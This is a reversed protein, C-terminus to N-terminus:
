KLKQLVIRLPMWSPYSDNFVIPKYIQGSKNAQNSETSDYLVITPSHKTKKIIIANSDKKLIVLNIGIVKSINKLNNKLNNEDTICVDDFGFYEKCESKTFKDKDNFLIYQIAEWWNYTKDIIMSSFNQLIDVNNSTSIKDKDTDIDTENEISKNENFHTLLQSLSISM